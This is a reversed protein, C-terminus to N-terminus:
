AGHEHPDDEEPEGTSSLAVGTAALAAVAPFASPSGASAFMRLTDTKAPTLGVREVTTAAGDNTGASPTVTLVMVTVSRSEFPWGTAPFVMASEDSRPAVSVMVCGAEGVSARPTAVPVTREPVTPVATIGAASVVSPRASVM